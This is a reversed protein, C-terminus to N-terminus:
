SSDGWRCGHRVFKRRELAEALITDDDGGNPV